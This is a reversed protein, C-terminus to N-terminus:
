ASNCVQRQCVVHSRDATVGCVCMQYVGNNFTLWLSNPNQNETVKNLNHLMIGSNNASVVTADKKCLLCVGNHAGSLRYILPLDAECLEKKPV